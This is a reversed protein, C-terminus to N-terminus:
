FTNEVSYWLFYLYKSTICLIAAIGDFINIRRDRNWHEKHSRYYIEPHLKVEDTLMNKIEKQDIENRSTM